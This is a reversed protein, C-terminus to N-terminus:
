RWGGIPAPNLAAARSTALQHRDPRGCGGHRRHSQLEETLQRLGSLVFRVAGDPHACAGRGSVLSAHRQALGVDASGAVLARVDDALAPLGFACPGCRRTSQEALWHAIRSLEALACTDTGVFVVTGAGFSGGAAAVGARSLPLSSDVPLWGGHFGGVLVAQAPGAGALRAVEALSTGYAAEVVGANAVSGSVTLLATGPETTTGVASYWASGRRALVALQAFTEANSLLTPAGSLGAETLPIRRGPPVGARGDLAEVLARAEGIVFRDPVLRVQYRGADPRGTIAVQLGSQVAPDTVAVLVSRAGIAAAVAAAGDLVLHPTHLLLATDKASAPEGECGNVVVTARRSNRLARIKAALPFGAGGRGALGVADLDSLLKARDPWKPEGHRDLHARYDTLDETTAGALLRPSGVWGLPVSAVSRSARDLVATM